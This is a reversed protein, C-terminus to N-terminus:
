NQGEWEQVTREAIAKYSDLPHVRGDTIDTTKIIFVNEAMEAVEHQADRIKQWSEPEDCTQSPNDQLTNSAPNACWSFRELEIIFFPLDKPDKEFFARWRGITRYLKDAYKETEGKIAQSEGQWWVIATPNLSKNPLITSAFCPATDMWCDIDTNGIGLSIATIQPDSESIRDALSLGEDDIQVSNSQGTVIWTETTENQSCGAILLAAIFFLTKKM